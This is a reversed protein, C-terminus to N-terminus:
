KQMETGGRGALLPADFLAMEEVTPPEFMTGWAQVAEWTIPPDEM